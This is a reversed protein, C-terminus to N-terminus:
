IDEKLLKYYLFNGKVKWYCSPVLTWYLSCLKKGESIFELIPITRDGKTVGVYFCHMTSFINEFVKSHVSPLFVYRHKWRSISPIQNIITVLNFAATIFILLLIKSKKSVRETVFVLLLLFSGRHLFTFVCLTMYKYFSVLSPLDLYLSYLNTPVLTWPLPSYSVIFDYSHTGKIHHFHKPGSM